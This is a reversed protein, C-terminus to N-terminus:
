LPTARERLPLVAAPELIHRIDCAPALHIRLISQPPPTTARRRQAPIDYPKATPNLWLILKTLKSYM